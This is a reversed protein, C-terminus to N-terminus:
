SRQDGRFIAGVLVDLNSENTAVALSRTEDVVTRGGELAVSTIRLEVRRGDITSVATTGPSVVGSVVRVGVAVIGATPLRQVHLVEFSFGSM